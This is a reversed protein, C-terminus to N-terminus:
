GDGRMVKNGRVILGAHELKRQWKQKTGIAKADSFLGLRVLLNTNSKALRVDPYDEPVLLEKRHLIPPSKSHRYDRPAVTGTMADVLVSQVLDPFAEADFGPYSLLSYKAQDRQLKVINFGSGQYEVPLLASWPRGADASDYLSRHLYINIGVRKGIGIRSILKVVDALESRGIM